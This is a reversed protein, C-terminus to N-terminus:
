NEGEKYMRPILQVVWKNDIPTYYAQVYKINVEASKPLQDLQNILDGLKMIDNKEEAMM